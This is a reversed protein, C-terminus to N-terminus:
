EPQILAKFSSTMDINNAICHDYIKQLKDPHLLLNKDTNTKKYNNMTALIYKDYNQNGLDRAIQSGSKNQIKLEDLVGTAFFLGVQFWIEDKYDKSDSKGSSRLPELKTRKEKLFKLHEKKIWIQMHTDAKAFTFVKDFFDTNKIMEALSSTTQEELHDIFWLEDAFIQNLVFFEQLGEQYETEFMGSIIKLLDVKIDKEEM